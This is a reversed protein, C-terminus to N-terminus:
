SQVSDNVGLNKKRGQGLIEPNGDEEGVLDVFINHERRAEERVKKQRKKYIFLGILAAVVLGVAISGGIVGGIIAPTSSGKLAEGDPVTIAGPLDLFRAPLQGRVQPLAHQADVGELVFGQDLCSNNVSSKMTFVSSSGSTGGGQSDGAALQFETGASLPNTGRYSFAEDDQNLASPPVNITTPKAGFPLFTVTYNPPTSREDTPFWHVLDCQFYDESEVEGPAPPDYAVFWKPAGNFIPCSTNGSPSPM